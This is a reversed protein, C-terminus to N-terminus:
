KRCKIIYAKKFEYNVDRFGASTLADVVQGISYKCFIGDKTFKKKTLFDSSAMFICLLGGDKLLTKIKSFPEDLNNWFYIVNTCFIIDFQNLIMETSLFDGHHLEAKGNTIHKKNRKSALKYMLDSFDIGSVFCDYGSVIKDIGVGLGYGIELIRDNQKIGLGPIIKDYVPINGRTMKKAIIRGLLGSPKRYQNGILRYM